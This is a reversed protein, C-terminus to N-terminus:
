KATVTVTGTEGSFEITVVYTGDAEVKINGGDATGWSNDWAGDARVKLENDAKLEVEATWKNDGASTM